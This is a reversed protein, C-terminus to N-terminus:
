HFSKLLLTLMLVAHVTFDILSRCILDSCSVRDSCGGGKHEFSFLHAPHSRVSSDLCRPGDGQSCLAGVDGATTLGQLVSSPDGVRASRFTIATTKGGAQTEMLAASTLGRRLQRVVSPAQRSRRPSASPHPRRPSSQLPMKFDTLPKKIQRLLTDSALLRLRIEKGLGYM